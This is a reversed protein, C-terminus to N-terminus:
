AELEFGTLAEIHGRDDERIYLRGDRKVKFIVKLIDEKILSPDKDLGAAEIRAIILEKDWAHSECGMCPKLKKDTLVIKDDELYVVAGKLDGVEFIFSTAGCCFVDFMDFGEENMRNVFEVVSMKKEM